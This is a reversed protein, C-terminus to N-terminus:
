TMRARNGYRGFETRRSIDEKAERGAHTEVNM